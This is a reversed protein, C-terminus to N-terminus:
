SGTAFLLVIAVAIAVCVVAGIIMAARATGSPAADIVRMAGPEQGEGVAHDLAMNAERMTRYREVDRWASGDFRQLVAAKSGLFRGKGVGALFPSPERPGPIGM